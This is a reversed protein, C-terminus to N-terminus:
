YGAAIELRSVRSDLKEHADKNQKEVLECVGVSVYGDNLKEMIKLELQALKADMKAIVLNQRLAMVFNALTAATLIIALGAAFIYYIPQINQM